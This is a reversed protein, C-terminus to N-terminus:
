KKQKEEKGQIKKNNNSGATHTHTTKARRKPRGKGEKEKGRGEWRGLETWVKRGQVPTCYHLVFIIIKKERNFVIFFSKRKEKEMKIIRRMCQPPAM